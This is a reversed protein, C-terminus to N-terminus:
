RVPVTLNAVENHESQERKLPGETPYGAFKERNQSKTAYISSYLPMALSRFINNFM